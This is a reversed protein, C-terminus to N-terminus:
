FSLRAPKRLGNEFELLKIPGPPVERAEEYRYWTRESVEAQEAAQAATLRLRERLQRLEEGTV